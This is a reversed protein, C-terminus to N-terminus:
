VVERQKQEPQSDADEWVVAEAIDALPSSVLVERRGRFWRIVLFSVAVAAVGLWVGVSQEKIWDFGASGVYVWLLTWPVFGILTAAWFPGFRVRSLGLVWNTWPACYFILRFVLAASFGNSEFREDWARVRPPLYSEIWGRAGYRAGFFGVLASGLAGAYVLAVAQGFPWVISAPVILVLGPSGLAVLVTFLLVFIVGGWPGSELLLRRLEQEDTLQQWAGSYYGAGVLGVVATLLILRMKM